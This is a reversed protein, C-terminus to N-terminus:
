IITELHENYFLSQKSKQLVLAADDQSMEKELGTKENDAIPDETTTVQQQKVLVNGKLKPVFFLLVFCSISWFFRPAFRSTFFALKKTNYVVFSKCFEFFNDISQKRFKSFLNFFLTKKFETSM